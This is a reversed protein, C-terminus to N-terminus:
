SLYGCDGRGQEAELCTAGGRGVGRSAPLSVVVLVLLCSLCLLLKPTTSTLAVFPKTTRRRAAAAAAAAAVQRVSGHLHWIGYTYTWEVCVENRRGKGRRYRVCDCALVLCCRVIFVRAGKRELRRGRRGRRRGRRAEEKRRGEKGGDEEDLNRVRRAAAPPSPFAASRAPLSLNFRKKSSALKKPL